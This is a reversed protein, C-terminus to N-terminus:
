SWGTDRSLQEGFTIVPLASAFFIYTTPALIRVYVLAFDVNSQLVLVLFSIFRCGTCLGNIWDQKYCAKRGKFDKIIGRFPAKFNDMGSHLSAYFDPLMAITSHPYESILRLF